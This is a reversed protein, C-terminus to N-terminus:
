FTSKRSVSVVSLAGGEISAYAEAALKSATEKWHEYRKSTDISTNGARFNVQRSYKTAIHEALQAAALVIRQSDSLTEATQGHIVTIEEDSLEAEEETTDGLLFRINAITNDGDFNYTFSM